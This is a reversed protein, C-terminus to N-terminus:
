PPERVLAMQELYCVLMKERKHAMLTLNDERVILHTFIVQSKHLEASKALYEPVFVQFGVGSVNIVLSDELKQTVNGEITALM